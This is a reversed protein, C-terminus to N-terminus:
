CKPICSTFILNVNPHSVVRATRQAEAVRETLLMVEEEETPYLPLQKGILHEIRQYLEVDYQVVISSSRTLGIVLM